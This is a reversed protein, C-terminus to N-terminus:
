AADSHVVIRLAPVLHIGGGGSECVRALLPFRLVVADEMLHLARREARLIGGGDCAEVGPLM